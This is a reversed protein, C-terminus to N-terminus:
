LLVPSHLLHSPCGSDDGQTAQPAVFPACHPTVSQWCIDGWTNSLFSKLEKFIKSIPLAERKKWCLITEAALAKNSGAKLLWRVKTMQQPGRPMQTELWKSYKWDSQCVALDFTWFYHAVAM